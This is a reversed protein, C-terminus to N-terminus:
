LSLGPWSGNLGKPRVRSDYKRMLSNLIKHESFDSNEFLRLREEPEHGNEEDEESEYIKAVGRLSFGNEFWRYHFQTREFSICRKPVALQLM